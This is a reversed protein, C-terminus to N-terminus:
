ALRLRRAATTPDADIIRAANLRICRALGPWVTLEAEGPVSFLATVTGPEDQHWSVTFRNLIGRMPANCVLIRATFWQVGATEATIAVTDMLVKGAGRGQFADAISLAIEASAPDDPDRVYRAEGVVAGDAPDILVWAFHDVFDVEFLSRMLSRGPCRSSMFRRYLTEESFRCNGDFIVDVDSPLAPRLLVACHDRLVVAISDTASAIRRRVLTPTDCRSNLAPAAQTSVV